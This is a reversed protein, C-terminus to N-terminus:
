RCRSTRQTTTGDGLQGYGNYGWAWVTGDVKLALGHEYGAAITTVGTLGSVRVPLTRQTTTGDGLQGNANTGWAWVTGDPALAISHNNGGAVAGPTLQGTVTYAASQVDSNTCGAKTAMAKLTFNGLTLTGGSAITPDSVTPDMGNITYYITAGPTADTVTVTTGAPYSGAALSFSPSSVKITYTNTTTTSPNYDTQFAKAKLITTSTLTIPGTYVTSGATPDSGNTTYRITAGASATVTVAVADVCTGTGPSMAPAALTGFNMTYTATATTSDTWGAKFGKAKLTTSTGIAIPGTYLTSAATPDTGDTTYRISPSPSSSSITVTQPTTYTGSGPAMTPTAVQLTYLASTVNSDSLGAKVAKAQLTTTATISVPVSYVPSATTPPTGDTTYYITAGVTASSITVTQNTTYIGAALSFTPTGAKWSFGAEAIKVATLRSVVTGDGLQSNQNAGWTWVSGDAGVAVSHYQGAGIASISALGATQVATLRQTVTGDGLQGYGNYGWAWVTGDSRLGLSHYFGAAVAATSAGVAVATLRQTNTGDGLQGFGNYGWAWVTGDISRVALSSANGGATVGISSVVSVSVPNVAQSTTGDGLQGNSNRGWSKMAGGTLVVATHNGGGAVAIVGPLGTVQTPASRSSTSGDGLQGYGNYGWTWVTGDARLAVSHNDGAAIAIVNTLASVLVPANRGTTTGDGLQGYGNYGWAWITGDSRLALSHHAGSAVAQVSTLGIVQVPVSSSAWSGFGLQGYGNYGWTWVTGDGKLVVTHYYGAAVTAASVVPPLLGTIVAGLTSAILVKRM